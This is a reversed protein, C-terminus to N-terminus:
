VHARGIQKWIGARFIQVGQKKLGRATELVQEETEASCPGALVLPRKDDVGWSSVPDIDLKLEM